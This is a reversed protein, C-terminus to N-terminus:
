LAELYQKIEIKTDYGYGILDAGSSQFFLTWFLKINEIQQDSFVGADKSNTAGCILVKVGHLDPIKCADKMENVKANVEKEKLKGFFTFDYTRSANENIMDSFIIICTEYEYNDKGKLNNWLKNINSTFSKGKEVLSKSENVANVIDTYEGCNIREQRKLMIIQSLEEKVTHSIYNIKRKSNSDAANNVGDLKNRFDMDALNLSYIREAKNQSCADIFLVTLKDKEGVNPLIIEKITTIYQQFVYNSVSTSNDVLIICNKRKETYCGSFVILTIIM